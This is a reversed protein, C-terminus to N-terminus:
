AIDDIYYNHTLAAASGFLMFGADQGGTNQGTVSVVSNGDVLVDITGTSANSFLKIDIRYWQNTNLAFDSGVQVNASNLARLGSGTGRLRMLSTSNSVDLITFVLSASAPHVAARYYFRHFVTKLTAAPNFVMALSQAAASPNIQLAYTGSRVVTTQITPSGTVVSIFEVGDTTSNLEFGCTFIRAM